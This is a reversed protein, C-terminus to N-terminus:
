RKKEELKNQVKNFLTPSIIPEHEGDIIQGSFKVKGIYTFNKLIKKIGNVSFNYKKALKNLSM